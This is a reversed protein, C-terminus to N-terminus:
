LGIAELHPKAPTPEGKTEPMTGRVISTYEQPSKAILAATLRQREKVHRREALEGRVLFLIAAVSAIVTSLV